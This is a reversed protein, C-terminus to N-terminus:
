EKPPAFAHKRHKEICIKVDSMQYLIKKGIQTYTILGDDRWNQLTRKSVQMLESLQDNTIMREEPPIGANTEQLQQPINDIRELLNEYEDKSFIIASFAM